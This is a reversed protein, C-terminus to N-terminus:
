ENIVVDGLMMRRTPHQWFGEVEDRIGVLYNQHVLPQIYAEEAIINQIDKYLALREDSDTSKRAQDLKEDLREDTTFTRNGTTGHNDSHFLAYLGYDADGTVTAWSLVFMEQEGEATFELFSAWEQVEIKVNINLPELASQVYTAIDQREKENSTHFVIDFGDALGEQALLQKAEEINQENSAVSPDYGFVKPALPSRAEIGVEDYIGKLVENRDLALSIAKRVNKNSLYEHQTNFGVYMIMVSEQSDSHIGDTAEIQVLENPSLPDIIHADGTQLEAMRTGGESVVRVFVSDVKAPEGWYDNNKVLRVSEGRKWEDFKFMGTGIAQKNIVFGPDKGKAMEEYDEAIMKPSMIAAGTHALHSPLPAFPYETHFRVTHDDIVEVEDIMTFLFARQSAVAPDLVRDFNAKVAEATFPTGDHFKVDKELQFEWTTEDIQEYSKALGPTLALDEDHNLLTEYIQSTMNSSYTDNAGHVDLSVIESLMSIRLEKETTSEGQEPQGVQGSDTPESSCATFVFSFLAVCMLHILRVNKLKM